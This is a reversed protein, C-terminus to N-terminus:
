APWHFIGPTRKLALDVFARACSVVNEKIVKQCRVIVPDGMAQLGIEVLARQRAYACDLTEIANSSPYLVFSGARMLTKAVALVGDVNVRWSTANGECEVFGNIGTCIFAVETQPLRARPDSLLDFGWSGPTGRRSTRIAEIERATLEEYIASGILGDGGVILARM